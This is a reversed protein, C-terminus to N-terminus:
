FLLVASGAFPLAAALAPKWLAAAAVVDIAQSVGSDPFSRDACNRISALLENKAQLERRKLGL